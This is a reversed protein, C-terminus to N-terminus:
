PPDRKPLLRNAFSTEAYVLQRRKKILANFALLSLLLGKAIFIGIIPWSPALKALTPTLPLTWGGILSFVAMAISLYAVRISIRESRATGLIRIPWTVVRLLTTNPASPRRALTLTADQYPHTQRMADGM